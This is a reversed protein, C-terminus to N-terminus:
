ARRITHALQPWDAVTQQRIALCHPDNNLLAILDGGRPLGAAVLLRLRLIAQATRLLGAQANYDLDIRHTTQLGHALTNRATAAVKAWEAMQGNLLWQGVGDGLDQLVCALRRELSLEGREVLKAVRSREASNFDGHALLAEKVRMAFPSATPTSSSSLSRHVWEIANVAAVVETQLPGMAQKYRAADVAM